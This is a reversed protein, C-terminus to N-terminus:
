LVVSSLGARGDMRAFKRGHCPASWIRAVRLQVLLVLLLLFLLHRLLLLFSVFELLLLVLLVHVQIFLLRIVRLLLLFFLIILLLRLLQLLFVLLLRLLQLLSHLWRVPLRGLPLISTSRATVSSANSGLPGGRRVWVCRTEGDALQGHALRRIKGAPLDSVKVPVDGVLAVSCDRPDGDLNEEPVYRM